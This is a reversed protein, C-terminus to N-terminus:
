NIVRAALRRGHTNSIYTFHKVLMDRLAYQSAEVEEAYVMGQEANIRGAVISEDLAAHVRVFAQNAPNFIGRRIENLAELDEEEHLGDAGGYDVDAEWRGDLGDYALLINHLVCCSFFVNDIKEKDQILLRMKLIRFRGKLIGFTCEVDKRISEVFKSWLRAWDDTTFKLPCQLCRWKHYGGDSILYLGKVTRETGDVDNLKFEINGYLEKKHIAQIFGDFQVITKDNFSGFFSKTVSIIRRHHDVVVEYALTPYGEKGCGISRLGAPCRDWGIHVCDASGICGPLGIASYQNLVHQIDDETTPYGCFRDFLSALKESMNHFFVRHVENSINTLEAIGEFCYGRGLVRLFGLLKLDLRSTERGVCDYKGIDFWKEENCISMLKEYIPFPVRFDRRFSKGEFTTPDKIRPDLLMLAWASISQDKRPRVIRERIGIDEEESEDNVEDFYAQLLLRRNNFAEMVIKSIHRSMALRNTAYELIALLNLKQIPLHRCPFTGQKRHRPVCCLFYNIRNRYGGEIKTDSLVACPFNLRFILFQLRIETGSLLPRIGDRLISEGM